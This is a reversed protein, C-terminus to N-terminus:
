PLGARDAIDICRRLYAEIRDPDLSSDFYRFEVTGRFFYSQLNLGRYRSEHYRDTQWNSESPEGYWLTALEEHTTPRQERFRKVFDQSILKAFHKLRDPNCNFGAVLTTEEVIMVDFLRCMDKVSANTAGVHVHVGCHRNPVAGTAAVAAVVVKLTGIDAESLVPSVLEARLHESFDLSDDDEVRWTAGNAARVEEHSISEDERDVVHKPEPGGVVSHIAKAIRSRTCGVMEIEIGVTRM